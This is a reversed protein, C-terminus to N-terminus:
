GQFGGFTEEQYLSMLNKATNPIADEDTDGRHQYLGATIVLVAQILPLPVATAQDGYGATYNVVMNM